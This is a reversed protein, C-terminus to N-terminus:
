ALGKAIKTEAFTFKKLSQLLFMLLIAHLSSNTQCIIMIPMFTPNARTQDPDVILYAYLACTIWDISIIAFNICVTQKLANITKLSIEKKQKKTNFVIYNLYAGQINDYLVVVMAFFLSFWGGINGLLKPIDKGYFLFGIVPASTILYIATLLVRWYYIRKETIRDDLISFAKLVETDIITITFTVFLASLLLCTNIEGIENTESWFFNLAGQLFCIVYIFIM